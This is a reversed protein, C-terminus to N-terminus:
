EPSIIGAFMLVLNDVIVIVSVSHASLLRKDKIKIRM